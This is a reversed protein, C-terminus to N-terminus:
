SKNQLITSKQLCGVSVRVSDARVFSPKSNNTFLLTNIAKLPNHNEYTFSHGV